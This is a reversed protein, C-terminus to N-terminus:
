ALSFYSVVSSMDNGSGNTKEILWRYAVRTGMRVGGTRMWDARETISRLSSYVGIGGRDM